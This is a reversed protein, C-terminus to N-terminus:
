VVRAPAGAPGREGQEAEHGEPATARRAASRSQAADRRRTSGLGDRAATM